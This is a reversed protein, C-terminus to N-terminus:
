LFLPLPKKHDAEEKGIGFLEQRGPKRECAVPVELKLGVEFFAGHKAMGATMGPTLKM